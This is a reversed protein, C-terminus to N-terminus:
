VKFSESLGRQGSAARAAKLAMAGTGTLALDVDSRSNLEVSDLLRWGGVTSDACQQADEGDEGDEEEEEDEEEEPHKAGRGRSRRAARRQRRVSREMHPCLLDLLGDVMRQVLGDVACGTLTPSSNCELLWVDGAADLMFDYGLLAYRARRDYTLCAPSASASSPVGGCPSQEAARVTALIAAHMRPLLASLPPLQPCDSALVRALEAMSLQNASPFVSAFAVHHQQVSHNTLHVYASTSTAAYPLSALRAYLGDAYVWISRTWARGDDAPRSLILAWVRLDFKHGRLLLPTEVYRQVVFSSSQSSSSSSSSFAACEEAGREGRISQLMASTFHSRLGEYSDHVEIGRGRSLGGPKCIWLNDLGSVFFQADAHSLAHLSDLASRLAPSAAPSPLLPAFFFPCAAPSCACTFRQPRAVFVDVVPAAVCHQQEKSEEQAADRQQQQQRQQQQARARGQAFWREVERWESDSLDDNGDDNREDDEQATPTSHSGPQAHQLERLWGRVARLALRAGHTTLEEDAEASETLLAAVARKLGCLACQRRHLRRLDCEGERLRTGTTGEGRVQAEHREKSVVIARPYFHDADVGVWRSQERLARTLGRKSTLSPGSGPIHCHMAFALSSPRPLPFLSAPSSRPAAVAARSLSALRSLVSFQVHYVPSSPQANRAYGRREFARAVVDTCSGGICSYVFSRQALALLRADSARVRAGCM